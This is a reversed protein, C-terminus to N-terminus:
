DGRLRVAYVGRINKMAFTIVREEPFLEKVFLTTGDTKEYFKVYAEGENTEIVCGAGRRPYRDRDFLVVEGSEAWPSVSDGAVEMADTNPGLIQRLDIRRIPEGADYVEPGQPGARARGYVDFVFDHRRSIQRPETAGTLRAREADLDGDSLGLADLVAEIREATFRREGAEYKQWAQTTMDLAFAVDRQHRGVRERLNRLAQGTLAQEAKDPSTTLPMRRHSAVRANIAVVTAM